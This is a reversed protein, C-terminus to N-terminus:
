NPSGTLPLLKRSFLGVPHGGPDLALGVAGSGDRLNFPFGAPITAGLEKAKKCSAEVDDVQVYVVGNFPSIKGEAGRLTGIRVGAANIEVTGGNGSVPKFTWDFLKGYFEKARSLDPTTIDFWVIRGPGVDLVSQKPSQAPTEASASGATGPIMACAALMGPKVLEPISNLVDILANLKM